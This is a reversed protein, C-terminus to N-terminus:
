GPGPSRPHGCVWTVVRGADLGIGGAMEDVGQPWRARDVPRVVFGAGLADLVVRVEQFDLLLGTLPYQWKYFSEKASFLRAVVHGREQERLSHLHRQEEPTCISGWLDPDIPAGDEVDIGITGVERTPAVVAVCIQRTHSISGTLGPPWVPARDPGSPVACPQLGIRRMAERAAARGAAFERQRRVVARAVADQEEPYLTHPDGDVGTCAVGVRQGLAAVLLERIRHCPDAHVLRDTM